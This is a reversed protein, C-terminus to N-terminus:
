RIEVSEIMVGLQRTDDNMGTARPVFSPSAIAITSVTAPTFLDISFPGAGLAEDFVMRGDLAIRVRSGANWVSGVVRMGRMDVPAAFRIEAAGNTWRGAPEAPHFGQLSVAMADDFARVDRRILNEGHVGNMRASPVRWTGAELDVLCLGDRLNNRSMWALAAEAYGPATVDEMTTTWGDPLHTSYGNLTPIGTQQAIVVAEVQAHFAPRGAIARGREVLFYRCGAPPTSLAALRRSAEAADFSVRYTTLQEVLLCALVVITALRLRHERLARDLGVAVVVIVALHLVV